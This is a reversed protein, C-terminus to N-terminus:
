LDEIVKGREIIYTRNFGSSNGIRNCNEPKFSSEHYLYATHRGDNENLKIYFEDADEATKAPEDTIARVQQEYGSISSFAEADVSVPTCALQEPETCRQVLINSVVYIALRNMINGSM